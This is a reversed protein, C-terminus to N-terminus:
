PILKKFTLPLEEIVDSALLGRDGLRKAVRDGALGHVFVGAITAQEPALGQALLGGIVGTLVDGMGATAMGPNGTPNIFVRGDSMAVVTRFGKLVLIVRWKKAFRRACGVRDKQIAATTLGTLRAMEGPHPTLISPPVRSLVRKDLAALINLADADLVMPVEVVRLLNQLLAKAGVGTGMGPGVAVSSKGALKKKLSRIAAKSFEGCTDSPLPSYMLELFNKSLKKFARDPLAVTVLGAGTRLAAKGSMLIAGPKNTSGGIALLHGYDGKHTQPKRPHLYTRVQQTTITKM